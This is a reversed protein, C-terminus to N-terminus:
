FRAPASCKLSKFDADIENRGQWFVVLGDLQDILQGYVILPFNNYRGYIRWLVIRLGVRWSREAINAVEVKFDPWPVIQRGIGIGDEVQFQM